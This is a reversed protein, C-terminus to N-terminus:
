GGNLLPTIRRVAARRNAREATPTQVMLDSEGYGQLVMNEPPVNFYETLALAVSEARRDSLALNYSYAGVADTHGEILFVEGPNRAILDRMANGLAALEEAEEPRIAASDTQFNITDVSLAPILHRVADINRIQNLSFTREVGSQQAALAAELQAADVRRYDLPARDTTQPLDNVVVEQQSQTDDFLVIERGDDLIRTRRLVRGDNARITEVQTGDDYAIVTRTSGDDYRYTQVEAGPRRLLVDDNRLVRYTGDGQEIVIRDGSNSVVEEDESLIENLAVAGLGVLAATGFRRLAENDDDDDNNGANQNNTFLNTTFDESSRRVDDEAVTEEVVEAEAEPDRAAASDAAQQDRDAAADAQEQATQEPAEPNLADATQEAGDRQAQDLQERVADIDGQDIEGDRVADLATDLDASTQAQADADAEAEVEATAEPQEPAPEPAEAQQEPEPQAEPEPAPEADQELADALRDGLNDVQNPANDAQAPADEAPAPADQATDAPGAESQPPMAVRGELLDPLLGPNRALREPMTDDQAISVIADCNLQPPLTGRNCLTALQSFTKAIESASKGEILQEPSGSMLLGVGNNQSLAPGSALMAIVSASITVLRTTKM